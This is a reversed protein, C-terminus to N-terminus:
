ARSNAKASLLQWVKISLGWYARRSTLHYSLPYRSPTLGPKSDCKNQVVMLTTWLVINLQLLHLFVKSVELLAKKGQNKFFGLKNGGQDNDTTEDAGPLFLFAILHRPRPDQRPRETSAMFPSMKSEMNKAYVKPSLNGCSDWVQACEAYADTSIGQFHGSYSNACAPKTLSSVGPAGLYINRVTAM